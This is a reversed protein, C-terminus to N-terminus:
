QHYLQNICCDIVWLSSKHDDKQDIAIKEAIESDSVDYDYCCYTTLVAEFDNKSLFEESFCYFCGIKTKKKHIKQVVVGSIELELLIILLVAHTQLSDKRNKFSYNQNSLFSSRM